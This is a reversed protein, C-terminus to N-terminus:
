LLILSPKVVVSHDWWPTNNKEQLQVCVRWGIEYNKDVVIVDTMINQLNDLYKKITKLETNLPQPQENVIASEPLFSYSLYIYLGNNNDINYGCIQSNNIALELTHLLANEGIGNVDFIKNSYSM